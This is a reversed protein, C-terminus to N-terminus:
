KFSVIITIVTIILRYRHHRPCNYLNHFLLFCKPFNVLTIVTRGHLNCSHLLQIFLLAQQTIDPTISFAM